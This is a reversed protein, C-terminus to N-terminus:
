RAIVEENLKHEAIEKKMFNLRLGGPEMDAIDWNALWYDPRMPVDVKFYDGRTAKVEGIREGDATRVECGSTPTHGLTM